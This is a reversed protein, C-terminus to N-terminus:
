GLSLRILSTPFLATVGSNKAFKQEITEKSACNLPLVEVSPPRANLRVAQSGARSLVASLEKAVEEAASTKLNAELILKEETTVYFYLHHGDLAEETRFACLVDYPIHDAKAKVSIRVGDDMLELKGPSAVSDVYLAPVVVAYTPHKPPPPPKAPEEEASSCAGM